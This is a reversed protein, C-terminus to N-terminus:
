DENLDVEVACLGGVVPVDDILGLAHGDVGQLVFDLITAYSISYLSGVIWKSVLLRARCLLVDDLELHILAKSLVNVHLLTVVVLDLWGDVQVPGSEAEGPGAGDSTLRLHSSWWFNALKGVCVEVSEPRRDEGEVWKHALLLLDPEDAVFIVEILLVFYRPRLVCVAVCLARSTEM